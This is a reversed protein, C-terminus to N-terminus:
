TTIKFRKHRFISLEEELAELDVEAGAGAEAEGPQKMRVMEEVIGVGHAEGEAATGEEAGAGAQASFCRKCLIKAMLFVPPVRVRLERLAMAQEVVEAPFEVAGAGAEGEPRLEEVEQPDEVRIHMPSLRYEPFAIVIAEADGEM